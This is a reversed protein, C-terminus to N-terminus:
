QSQSGRGWHVGLMGALKGELPKLLKGQATGVTAKPNHCGWCDPKVAVYSHCQDCFVEISRVKGDEVSPDSAAHCDICGQLSYKGGRIGQRLTEERQQKLFDMHNRRMLDTPEVCQEGKPKALNPLPVGGDGAATPPAGGVLLLALAVAFARLLATAHNM